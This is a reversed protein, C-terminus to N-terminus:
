TPLVRFVLNCHTCTPRNSVSGLFQFYLHKSKAAEGEGRAQKSTNTRCVSQALPNCQCVSQVGEFGRLLAEFSRSRLHTWQVTHSQASFAESLENNAESACPPDIHLQPQFFALSNISGALLHMKHLGVGEIPPPSDSLHSPCSIIWFSFTCESYLNSYIVLHSHFNSQTVSLRFPFM